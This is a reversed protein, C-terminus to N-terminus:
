VLWEVDILHHEPKTVRVIAPQIIVDNLTPLGM